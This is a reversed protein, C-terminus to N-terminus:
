LGKSERMYPSAGRIGGAEIDERGDSSANDRSDGKSMSCTDDEPTGKWHEATPVTPDPARAKTPEGCRQASLSKPESHAHRREGYRVQQRAERALIRADRLYDAYDDIAAVKQPDLVFHYFNSSTRSRRGIEIWGAKAIQPVTREVTRVSVGVEDAITQYSPNCQGTTFNVCEILYYSIQKATRTMLSNRDRRIWMCLQAKAKVFEAQLRRRLEERATTSLNRHREEFDRPLIPLAVIATRSSISM